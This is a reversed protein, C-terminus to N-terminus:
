IERLCAKRMCVSSELRSIDTQHKKVAQPEFSDECDRPIDLDFLGLDSKVTKKSKGNRFNTTNKNTYDYKWWGLCEEMEAELM